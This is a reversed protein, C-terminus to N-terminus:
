MTDVTLFHTHARKGSKNKLGTYSGGGWAGLMASGINLM